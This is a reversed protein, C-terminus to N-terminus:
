DRQLRYCGRAVREFRPTGERAGISLCCNVSAKSVPHGLLNEVAAQVEPVYMPRLAAALVKGVARQVVGNGLRLTVPQPVVPVCAGDAQEVPGDSFADLVVRLSSSPNSLQGVL